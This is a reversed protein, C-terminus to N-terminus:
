ISAAKRGQTHSSGPNAASFPGKGFGVSRRVEDQNNRNPGAQGVDTLCIPIPSVSVSAQGHKAAHQKKKGNIKKNVWNTITELESGIPLGLFFGAIILALIDLHSATSSQTWYLFAIGLGVSICVGYMFGLLKM